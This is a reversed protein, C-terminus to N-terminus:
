RSGRRGSFRRPRAAPQGSCLLEKLHPQQRAGPQKLLEVTALVDDSARHANEVPIRHARLLNQLARNPYGLRKWDIGTMSCRWEMTLVEPYLQALFRRDFPANHAILFDAQRFMSKVKEHDLDKGAVDSPSLGHVAQAASSIPVGPERLGCYVDVVRQIEATEVSYEFLAVACEILEDSRHLGSTEVDVVAARAFDPNNRSAM